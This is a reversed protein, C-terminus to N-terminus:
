QKQKLYEASDGTNKFQADNLKMEARLGTMASNAQAIQENFEATDATFKIKAENKGAM